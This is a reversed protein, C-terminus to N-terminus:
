HTWGALADARLRTADSTPLKCSGTACVYAVATGLRARKESAAPLLRELEAPAGQSPTVVGTIWPALLRSWVADLAQTQAVSHDGAVVIEYCPGALVLAADLWGAMELGRERLTASYALLAARQSAAFASGGTATALRGLLSLMASNGSPEVHDFVEVRRGLPQQDVRSTLFWAGAPSAFRQVAETALAVSRELQRSDGTAEFLDLLALALDAYDDLIAAEGARGGNSTRALDGAPQRNNTWTASAAREAADRYRVDASTRYGLALASITLGNWATVLKQDFAPQPRAQRAELLKWRWRQWVQRAHTLDAASLSVAAHWTPVSEREFNGAETVGLLTALVAGDADAAVARLQAPTWLYTAGETGASDADFSAGFGGSTLQMQRLLFDLTDEGVERYRPEDLAVAAELYLAALQANDYLMKEFHPVTWTPETTYRFFGGGIQDHLGGNAMADLTKRLAAALEPDAWKRYAHLLFRWRIPTPFKMRGAFGGWQPDVNRVAAKAIARLEPGQLGPQPNSPLSAAIRQYLVAGQSEVADRESRFRDAVSQIVRLFDDHPFYTGGFFPRGTPTLFVTMPWGGGDTMAEVASMYAADLDPREERDVKISIFHENLFIAVDDHEFVESEMVHCWHCSVYGISLFIPRDLKVALALAEAGWPYWEVPNHAHAQLYASGAGILHNGQRRIQEPTRTSSGATPQLTAASRDPPPSRHCSVVLTFLVLCRRLM